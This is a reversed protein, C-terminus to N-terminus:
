GNREQYWGQPDNLDVDEGEQADALSWGMRKCLAALQVIQDFGGNTYIDQVAAGEERLSLSFGRHVPLEAETSSEWVLTPFEENLAKTVAGIDGLSEAKQPTPGNKYILLNWSMIEYIAGSREM